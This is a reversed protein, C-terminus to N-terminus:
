NTTSTTTAKDNNRKAIKAIETITNKFADRTDKVAKIAEDAVKRPKELEIDTESTSSASTNSNTFTNVASKALALKEDAIALSAKADTVVKGESELRVIRDNIRTRINALNELSLTLQKILAGKRIEFADKKMKQMVEKKAERKEKFMMTTSAKIDRKILNTSMKLEKIDGKKEMHINKREEMLMKKDEARINRIDSNKDINARLPSSSSILMKQDVRMGQQANVTGAGIAISIVCLLFGIKFTNSKM